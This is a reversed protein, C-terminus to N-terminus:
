ISANSVHVVYRQSSSCVSRLPLYLCSKYESVVFWILAEILALSAPAVMM